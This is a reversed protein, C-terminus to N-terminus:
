VEDRFGLKKFYDLLDLSGEIQLKKRLRYKRTQITRHGVYLHQAIQKADQQMCLYAILEFDKNTISPHAKILSNYFTAYLKKFKVLFLESNESSLRNLEEFESNVKSELHKKQEQTNGLLKSKKKILKSLLFVMFSAIITIAISLYMYRSKKSTTEKLSHDYSKIITSLTKKRIKGVYETDKELHSLALTINESQKLSDGLKEYVRAKTKYLDYLYFDNYSKYKSIAKDLYYIASDPESFAEHYRGMAAIGSASNIVSFKNSKTLAYAKTAYYYASDKNKDENLYYQTLLNLTTPSYPTKIAKHFYKLAEEHKNSHLLAYANLEYIHSALYKNNINNKNHHYEALAAYKVAPEFVQMKNYLKTYETYLKVLFFETSYKNIKSESKQLSALARDYEGINSYINALQLDSEIEKKINKEQKSLKNIRYELLLLSDFKGEYRYQKSLKRLSDFKTTKGQKGQALFIIPYLLLLLFLNRM